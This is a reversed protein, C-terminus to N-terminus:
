SDFNFIIRAPSEGTTVALQKMRDIFKEAYDNLSDRWEIATVYTFKDSDWNGESRADSPPQVIFSDMVANSVHRVGGGDISGSWSDPRGTQKFTRYEDITVVGRKVIPSDWDYALVEPLTLYTDTHDGGRRRFWEVSAPSLDDPLGRPDAIPQVRDGTDVGAFGSGNRVDALVGFVVYNRDSYWEDRLKGPEVYDHAPGPTYEGTSENYDYWKDIPDTCTCCPQGINEAIWEPKYHKSNELTYVGAGKCRWCDIVPGPVIEWGSEAGNEAYTMVEAIMHIDTGM